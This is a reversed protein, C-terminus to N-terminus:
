IEHSSHWFQLASLLHLSMVARKQATQNKDKRLEKLNKIDHQCMRHTHSDLKNAWHSFLQFGFSLLSKEVFAGLMGSQRVTPDFCFSIIEWIHIDDLVSELYPFVPSNRCQNWFPELTEAMELSMLSTPGGLIKGTCDVSVKKNYRCGLGRILLDVKGVATCLAVSLQKLSDIAHLKDEKMRRPNRIGMCLYAMMVSTPKAMESGWYQEADMDSPFSTWMCSHKSNVLGDPIPFGPWLARHEDQM